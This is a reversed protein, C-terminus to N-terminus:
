KGLKRRRKAATCKINGPPNYGNHSLHDPAPVHLGFESLAERAAIAFGIAAEANCANGYARLLEVAAPAGHALTRLGPGVARSPGDLCQIWLADSWFGTTSGSPHPPSGDGAQVKWRISEQRGGRQLQRQIKQTDGVRAALWYLRQRKQPAGYGAAPTNTAACAYGADELDDFVADLWALGNRGAVQEGLIVQPKGLQVLRYFIPWLHRDDDFGARKGAQSFPQCPLSATWTTLGSRPWGSQELAYSWVGAGAFFHCIDRGIVDKAQVEQVPRRDVEGDPIAGAACLERLLQAPFEAFENYYVKKAADRSRIASSDALSGDTM